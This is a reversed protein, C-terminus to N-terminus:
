PRNTLWPPASLLFVRSVKWAEHWTLPGAASPFSSPFPRKTRSRGARRRSSTPDAIFPASPGSLRRRKQTACSPLPIHRGRLDSSADFPAKRWRTADRRVSRETGLDSLTKRSRAALFRLDGRHLGGRRDERRDGGPLRLRDGGRARPRDGPSAPDGDHVRRRLAPLDDSRGRHPPAPARVRARPTGPPRHSAPARRADRGPSPSRPCRLSIPASWRARKAPLTDGPSRPPVGRSSSRAVHRCCSAM